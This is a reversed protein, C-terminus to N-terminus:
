FNLSLGVTASFPRPYLNNDIGGFVEPDIGEYKTIIFANNVAGYLRGSIGQWSTGKLLNNFSYGLTINDCKLFSGNQVWRDSLTATTEYTQWKYPLVYKPRNSLFSHSSYIESVNMNSKGAMGDNYVYNGISARLSFGFDWNKYELRSAFGMTVPAAPSKYFYKDADTIQGDANRDVVVGELPMGNKDYVQQFVYFSSAPHGVAHAQANVGVGSSIGGTPVFYDDDKGGTLKTISNQNYTFNYDLTWNWDKTNLALWHFSAEVGTNKMDGINSRLTNKFNAGAPVYVTNLLDTTKRYYWDVTGTLRQKFIGWDLGINYTTTTEWTLSHNVAAPRAMTGDGSIPYYSDPGANMTYSTYYSFDDIGEQQGTQGYGLRLKLNSLWEIEKFEKEDKIRWAFAFSPFYGWQQNPYPELWNFRTSGDARFTATLMYRSDMLSWNARGFFSLLRNETPDYYPDITGDGDYDKGKPKYITGALKKDNNTEPYYGYYFNHTSKTFRQYESGLMIDFHNMAKDNFDHYYQTYGSMTYSQKDIKEWGHNGYYVGESSPYAPSEDLVQKGTAIDAGATAHFRLDEFGHVKYDLDINGVFDKSNASENHLHLMAVPNATAQDNYTLPWTPDNLSTGPMTWEYYGGFNKYKDETSYVPKTPDMMVAAGIADTKAYKTDAYMGKLNLNINLHNDFLSPSLNVAATYRKFDSTKLIGEQGTYGLSVRYPLTAGASGTLTVGHDQSFATQYIENQWDTNATGLAGVAEDYRSNGEYLKKVFERYEDGNMVDITKRKMSVTASGNYSISLKQGKRGKKTTIIIVGNSGRSGYIATASADKLVNFSEIDQPNVLSLPNSLGKVGNNDMPVGDIVILPDNSANLSSGGRVRITAGAGPSGSNSTVNVGAIKGGIMDQANVVLGKNKSDPKLATVSGTLDSKKVAGYGIVVVENLTKEGGEHLTISMNATASGKYGEYGIYDVTVTAGSNANLTFNGDIDTVTGGQQGDVRVTAGIVPEGTADVVHGKVVVQQGFVTTALALGCVLTFARRPMTLRVQKM